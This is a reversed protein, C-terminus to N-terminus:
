PAETGLQLETGALLSQLRSLSTALESRGTATLEYLRKRRGGRVRTPAGLRSTVLRRSELRALTTYVAGMSVTRGTREVEGFVAAGYAGRGLRLVAALVLMEFEGLANREPM